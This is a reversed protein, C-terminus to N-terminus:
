YLIRIKIGNKNFKFRNDRRFGIIWAIDQDFTVIGVRSRQPAPIKENIMFDKVKKKGNMGLPSFVDGMRRNRLRIVCDDSPLSFYQAGDNKCKDAYEVSVTYGTQPIFVSEGIKLEYSFDSCEEDDQAIYLEGYRVFACINRIINCKSGTRNNRALKLVSLITDSSIDSVGCVARLMLRIVRLSMAQPMKSIIETKIKGNKVHNNYENEAAANLFEEDASMVAANKTITDCFSPNLEKEIQPIIIHRLKNRTYVTQNNTEDTVYSINNEMCYSEIESRSSDLLPRIIRGRQPPIGCLGKIGSGRVFNMLITEANDNKHHATATFDIGYKDMLKEFFEYRIERGALEESIGKKAAEARVDAKLTFIEVGLSAAFQKAFEEDRQASEGRLGHNVHAAYVKFGYKDSLRCLIHTMAASDAGGSLAALVAKQPM